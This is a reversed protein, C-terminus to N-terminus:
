EFTEEYIYEGNFNTRVVAVSSNDDSDKVYIYESLDDIREYRDFIYACSGYKLTLFQMSDIIADLHENEEDTLERTIGLYEYESTTIEEKSSSSEKSDCGKFALVLIIILIIVAGISISNKNM